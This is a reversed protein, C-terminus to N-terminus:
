CSAVMGRGRRSPLPVPGDLLLDVVESTRWARRVARRVEVCQPTVADRPVDPLVEGDCWSWSRLEDPCGRWAVAVAREDQAAVAVQLAGLAAPRWRLWGDWSTGPIVLSRTASGVAPSEADVARLGYADRVSRSWCLARAGKTGAVWERWLSRSRADHRCDALIRSPSRSGTVRAIKTRPSGLEWALGLKAVYAGAHSGDRVDVGDALSPAQLGSAVCCRRWRSSLWVALTARTTPLGGRAGRRVVGARDLGEEAERLELRLAVRRRALRSRALRTARSDRSARARDVSARLEALERVLALAALAEPTWAAVEPADGDLAFRHPVLAHIHPHWGSRGHTAELGRVVGVAGITDLMKRWGKGSTMRRWARTTRRRVDILADGSGHPVTLTWLSASERRVRVADLLARLEARRDAYVRPACRPCAWVSGCTEVGCISPASAEGSRLEVVPSVRAVLCRRVRRAADLGHLAARSIAQLHYPRAKARAQQRLAAATM